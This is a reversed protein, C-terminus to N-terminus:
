VAIKSKSTENVTSTCPGLFHDDGGGEAVSVAIALSLSVEYEFEIDFFVSFFNTGIV